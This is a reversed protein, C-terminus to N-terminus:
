TRQAGFTSGHVMLAWVLRAMKNSLAVAAVMYPKRKLARSGMTDNSRYKIKRFRLVYHAGLVLLRRLYPDGQKTISGLRKSLENQKQWVHISKELSAIENQVSKMQRVLPLLAVRAVTPLSADEECEIVEVLQMVGVIGQRSVLGLEAAHARIANVIMTPQRVLHERARHLMIVAQQKESKKPVFRM